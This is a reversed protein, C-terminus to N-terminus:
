PHPQGNPRVMIEKVNVQRFLSVLWQIGDATAKPGAFWQLAATGEFERVVIEPMIQVAPAEANSGRRAVSVAVDLAPVTARGVDAVAGTVAASKGSLLARM